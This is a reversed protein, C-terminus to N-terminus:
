HQQAGVNNACKARICAKGRAQNPLLALIEPTFEAEM